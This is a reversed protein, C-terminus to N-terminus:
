SFHESDPISGVLLQCLSQVSFIDLTVTAAVAAAASVSFPVAVVPLTFSVAVAFSVFASAAAPVAFAVTVVSLAFAVAVAPVSFPVAVVSLSVFASAAASM